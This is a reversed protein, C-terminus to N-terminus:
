GVRRVVADLVSPHLPNSFECGVQDWRAWVVRAEMAALGPLTIWVPSGVTIGGFTEVKFGQTSLDLLTVEVKNYGSRRLTATGQVPKREEKRPHLPENTGSVLHRLPEAL